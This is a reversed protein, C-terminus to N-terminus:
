EHIYSTTQWNSSPPSTMQLLPNPTSLIAAKYATNLADYFAQYAQVLISHTM